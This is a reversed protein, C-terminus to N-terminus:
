DLNISQIAGRAFERLVAPDGHSELKMPDAIAELAALLKDRQAEAAQRFQHPTKGATRQLSVTLDGIEDHHMTMELYNVAGSGKFQGAFSAVLMQCALGNMELSLGGDSPSMGALFAQSSVYDAVSKGEFKDLPIDKFANMCAVARRSYAEAHPSVFGGVYQGSADVIDGHANATLTENNISDM